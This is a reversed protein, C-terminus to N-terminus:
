STSIRNEWARSGTSASISDGAAAPFRELRPLCENGFVAKLEHPPGPLLIVVRGRREIWQGPATGRANPLPEAGQVLYAQRLNNEAMKRQMRRFRESSFM